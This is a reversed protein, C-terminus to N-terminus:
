PELTWISATALVGVCLGAAFFLRSRGLAPLVGGALVPIAPIIQVLVFVTSLDSPEGSGYGCFAEEAGPDPGSNFAGCSKGVSVLYTVYSLATAVFVAALVWAAGAVWKRM